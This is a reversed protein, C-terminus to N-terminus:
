QGRPMMPRRAPPPRSAYHAHAAEVDGAALVLHGGAVTRRLAIPHCGGPAEDILAPAYANGCQRCVMHSGRQVYGKRAHFCVECADLAARYAAGDRVAFFRIPAGGAAPRHEFFRAVGADLDSLPIRIQAGAGTTTAVSAPPESLEPSVGPDGGPRARLYAFITGAVLSAVALLAFGAWLRFVGKTPAM